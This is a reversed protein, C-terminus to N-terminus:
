LYYIKIPTIEELIYYADIPYKVKKKYKSKPNEYVIRLECNFGERELQQLLNEIGISKIFKRDCSCNGYRTLHNIIWKPIVESDKSYM